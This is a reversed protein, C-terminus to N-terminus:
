FPSPTSSAGSLLLDLVCIATILITIVSFLKVLISEKIEGARTLFSIMRTIIYCGIMVGITPIM